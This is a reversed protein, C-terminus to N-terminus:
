VVKAKTVKKMFSHGSSVFQGFVGTLMDTGMLFTMQCQLMRKTCASLYKEKKESQNLILELIIVGCSM